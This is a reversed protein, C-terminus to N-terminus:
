EADDSRKRLKRWGAVAMAALLFPLIALLDFSSVPSVSITDFGTQYPATHQAETM